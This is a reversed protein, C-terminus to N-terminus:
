AANAALTMIRLRMQRHIINFSDMYDDAAISLSEPTLAAKLNEESWDKNARKALAFVTAKGVRLAV